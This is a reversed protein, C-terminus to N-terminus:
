WAGFANEIVQMEGRDNVLAVDFRVDTLSGKPQTGIFEEAAVAIRARQRASIRNLAREFSRSKKVEVFVVQEHDRLILDIEGAAGRWRTEAVDLGLDQYARAVIAEAAVGGHYASEGRSQRNAM